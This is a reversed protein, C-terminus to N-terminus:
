KGIVAGYQEVLKALRNFGVLYYSVAIAREGSRAVFMRQEPVDECRVGDAFSISQRAGNPWVHSIRFPNIEIVSDVIEHARTMRRARVLLMLGLGTWAVRWGAQLEPTLAAIFLAAASFAWARWYRVTARRRFIAPFPFTESFGDGTESGERELAQAVAVRLEESPISQAAEWREAAEYPRLEIVASRVENLREQRANWSARAVTLIALFTLADARTGFVRHLAIGGLVLLCAVILFRRAEVM